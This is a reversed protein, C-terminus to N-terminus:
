PAKPADPYTTSFFTAWASDFAQVAEPAMRDTSLDMLPLLMQSAEAFTKVAMLRTCWNIISETQEEQLLM